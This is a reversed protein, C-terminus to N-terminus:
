RSRRKRVSRLLSWRTTKIESNNRKRKERRRRGRRRVSSRSSSLRYIINVTLM